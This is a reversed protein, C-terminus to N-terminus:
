GGSCQPKTHLETYQGMLGQSPRVPHNCRKDALEGLSMGHLLLKTPKTTALGTRCQDFNVETVKNSARLKAIKPMLWISPKGEGHDPNELGWPVGKKM